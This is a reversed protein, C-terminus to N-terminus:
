LLNAIQEKQPGNMPYTKIFCSGALREVINKPEDHLLLVCRYKKLLDEQEQTMSDRMLSATSSFGRAIFYLGDFPNVTVIITDKKDCNEINWLTDVKFNKPFLWTKKEPHYGIYHQGVKFCIHGAMISKEKCFGVKLDRCLDEPAIKFLYDHYTLTLEPIKREEKVEPSLSKIFFAAERLSLNNRVSVFKIISGGKLEGKVGGKEFYVNKESNIVEQETILKQKEEKYPIKMAELVSKFPTKSITTFDLFGYADM